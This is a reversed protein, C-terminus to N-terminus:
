NNSLQSICKDIEWVLESLFARAKEIDGASHEINSAITLYEVQNTLKGVEKRYNEVRENLERIQRYADNRQQVVKEYRQSLMEAKAKISAIRQEFNEPMRFQNSEDTRNGEKWIEM